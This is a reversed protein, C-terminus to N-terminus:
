KELKELRKELTDIKNLSEKLAGALVNVYNSLSYTLRDEETEGKEVILSGLKTDMIDQAIFGLQKKADKDTKMNYTALNLNDKVFSLCDKGSLNNKSKDIYEINEKDRKDSVQFTGKSTHLSYFPRDSKGLAFGATSGGSKYENYLYGDKNLVLYGYYGKDLPTLYLNSGDGVVTQSHVNLWELGSKGISYTLPAKDNDPLIDECRVDCDFTVHNKDKIQEIADAQSNSPGYGNPNYDYYNFTMMGISSDTYWAQKDVGKPCVRFIVRHLLNKTTDSGKGDLYPREGVIAIGTKVPNNLTATAKEDPSDWYRSFTSEISLGENKTDYQNELKLGDKQTIM